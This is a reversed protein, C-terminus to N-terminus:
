HKLVVIHVIYVLTNYIPCYMYNALYARFKCRSMLLMFYPLPCLGYM